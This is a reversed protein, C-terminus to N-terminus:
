GNTIRIDGNSNHVTIVNRSTPSEPVTVTRSGFPPPAADVRYTAPGQPLVLTVSGFSDTVEVQRPVKSFVLRIDGSNDRAIVEPAALGTVTISGFSAQLRTSGTVSSATIDGNTSTIRVGGSLGAATVEGFQDSLSISGHLDAATLNGSNVKLTEGAALGTATLNGFSDTATVPVASPVQMHLDLSCNGAEVVCSPNLVLGHATDQHQFVPRVISGYLRGHGSILGDQGPTLTVDANSVTLRTLGGAPASFNVSYGVLDGRALTSAAAKGWGWTALAILALAAPVGAVLIARRAPTLPVTLPM